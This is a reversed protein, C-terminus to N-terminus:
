YRTNDVAEDLKAGLPSQYVSAIKALLEEQPKSSAKSPKWAALSRGIKSFIYVMCHADLAAYKLQDPSLPRQKWNSVQHSKDLSKGIYQKCLAKLSYGESSMKPFAERGTAFAQNYLRAMDNLSIMSHDSHHQM